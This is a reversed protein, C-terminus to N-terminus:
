GLKSASGRGFPIPNLRSLIDMIFALARSDIACIGVNRILNRVIPAMAEADEIFPRLMQEPAALKVAELFARGADETRGILFYHRAILIQAEVVVANRGQRHADAAFHEIEEVSRQQQGLTLRFQAITARDHESRFLM